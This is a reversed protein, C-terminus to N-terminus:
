LLINSRKVKIHNGDELKLTYKNENSNYNEIIAHEGNLQPKSQINVVEVLNGNEVIIDEIKVDNLIISRNNHHLLINYKNDNYGVIKGKTGTKAHKINTLVLINRKKLSLLDNSELIVIYRLTNKDFDYVKGTLGNKEPTSQLNRVLIPTSDKLIYKRRQPRIPQQHHHMNFLDPIPMGSSQMFFTQRQFGNGSQFHQFGGMNGFPGNGGFFSQFIDNPNIQPGGQLGEKGFQDYKQRQEKDSLVGYAEGVKKFAKEANEKNDKNKDPHYKMALKRYAKKIVNEDAENSVGLVEYYNDSNINAM